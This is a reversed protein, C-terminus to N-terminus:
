PSGQEVIEEIRPSGGRVATANLQVAVYRRREKSEPVRYNDGKQLIPRTEPMEGFARSGSIQCPFWHGKNQDDVLYFEPYSHDTVWVMRAPIKAARCLAVFLSTMAECDGVKDKLADVAGKLDSERYEVNARVYDYIAEAQAWGNPKDKVIERALTRIKPHRSEIYPSDGLFRKIDRPVSKPVQYIDTREPPLIVKRDIDLTLIAECTEKAGLRPISLLMQKVGGELTRYDVGRVDPSIEEEVVRVEQEPWEMPIPVSADIGKCEGGTKIRIGVKLRVTRTEGFRIGPPGTPTISEPSTGEPAGTTPEGTTPEGAAADAPDTSAEQGAGDEDAEAEPAQAFLRVGGSPLAASLAAFLAVGLATGPLFQAFRKSRVPSASMNM